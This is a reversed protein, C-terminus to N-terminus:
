RQRNKASSWNRAMLLCWRKWGLRVARVKPVGVIRTDLGLEVFVQRAMEIQGKGGDILVVDPMIAGAGSRRCNKMAVRVAGAAYRTIMAPTIDINYRRYESNAHTIISCWAHAQTAERRIVSIL